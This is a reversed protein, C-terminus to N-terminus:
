EKRLGIESLTFPIAERHPKNESYVLQTQKLIQLERLLDAYTTIAERFLVQDEKMTAVVLRKTCKEITHLIGEIYQSNENYLRRMKHAIEGEEVSNELIYLHQSIHQPIKMNLRAIHKLFEFEKRVYQLGGFTSSSTLYGTPFSFYKKEVTYALSNVIAPEYVEGTYLELLAAVACVFYAAKEASTARSNDSLLHIKFTGKSYSIKNKELYAEVVEKVGNEEKNEIHQDTSVLKIQVRKQVAATLVPFGYLYGEEGIIPVCIPASYTLNIAKKM